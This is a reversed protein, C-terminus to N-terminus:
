FNGMLFLFAWKMKVFNTFLLFDECLQIDDELASEEAKLGKFLRVTMM